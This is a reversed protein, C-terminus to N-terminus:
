QSSVVPPQLCEKVTLANNTVTIFSTGTEGEDGTFSGSVKDTNSICSSADLASCFQADFQCKYDTSGAGGQLQSSGTPLAGGNTATATVGSLSGLGANGVAVGCTTGLIINGGSNTCGTNTCKTLDGFPNDTLGTLSLSEDVASTNAVDVNYRVTVCAAQTSDYGKTIKATSPAEGSVVEVSNSNTPGFTGTSSGGGSVNVTDTIDKKEPQSATFTCSAPTGGVTLATSCTTSKICSTGASATGAGTCGKFPTDVGTCQAKCLDGAACASVKGDDSITGYQTDCIQDVVASGFNSKNTIGVTYVVDGGETNAMGFTCKSLNDQAPSNGPITCDKTVSVSPTQVTIGLPITYCNCKSPSGPIATPKGKLFAGEYTGDNSNCQITSGPVQWSTCNPLNLQTGDPLGSPCIFDTIVASVVQTATFTQTHAGSCPVVINNADLCVTTDNSSTDGCNDPVANKTPPQPDLEEYKPDNAPTLINDSCTGSLASAATPDKQFYLGINSRASSSTTQVLFDALFAFTGPTCTTKPLGTVPDRVNIVKAVRVDNATCGLTQKATLNYEDQLCNGAFAPVAVMVIALM